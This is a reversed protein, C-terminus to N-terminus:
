KALYALAAIVLTQTGTSLTPEIVPAFFESHNVPVDQEVRGAERAREYKDAAIGGVGWYTYPTGLANPIDSFDESATQPGLDFVTGAPFHKRFATTIRKTVDPDNDTLPYQDYYHFEPTPVSSHLDRTEVARDFGGIQEILAARFDDWEYVGREALGRAIGFARGQWPADFALEGNVMPPAAAGSLEYTQTM